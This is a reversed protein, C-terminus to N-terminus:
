IHRRILSLPTTQRLANRASWGSILIAALVFALSIGPISEALTVAFQKWYGALAGSDSIALSAYQGFGSQALQHGLSITAPIIAVFSVTALIMYGSLKIHRSRQDRLVIIRCVDACLHNRPEVQLSCFIQTLKPNMKHM